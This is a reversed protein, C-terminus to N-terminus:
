MWFDTRRIPANRWADMSYAKLKIVNQLTQGLTEPNNESSKQSNRYLAMDLFRYQSHARKAVCGAM